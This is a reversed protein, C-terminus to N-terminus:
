KKARTARKALEKELERGFQDRYMGPIEGRLSDAAPNIFPQAPGVGSYAGSQKQRPRTGFEVLHSHYGKGSRGGSRDAYVQASILTREDSNRKSKISRQLNGTPGVPARKRVEDRVTRAITVTTRRLINRSERPTVTLLLDAVEEIGKIEM